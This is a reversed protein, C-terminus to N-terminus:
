PDHLHFIDFNLLVDGLSYLYSLKEVWTDKYDGRVFLKRKKMSYKIQSQHLILILIWFIRFM